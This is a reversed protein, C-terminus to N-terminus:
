LKYRETKVLYFCFTMQLADTKALQNENHNNISVTVKVILMFTLNARQHPPAIDFAVIDVAFIAFAAFTAYNYINVRLTTSFRWM